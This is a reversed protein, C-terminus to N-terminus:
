PGEILKGFRGEADGSARVRQDWTGTFRDILVPIYLGAAGIVLCMAFGVATMLRILGTTSGLSTVLGYVQLAASALFFLGTIRSGAKLKGIMERKERYWALKEVIIETLKEGVPMDRKRRGDIMDDVGDFTEACPILWRIAFVFGLFGLGGYVIQMLNVTQGSALPLLNNVIWSVSFAMALAAGVINLIVLAAFSRTERELKEFTENEM